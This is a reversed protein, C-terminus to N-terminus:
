DASWGGFFIESPVNDKFIIAYIGEIRPVDDLISLNNIIMEHTPKETKYIKILKNKPVGTVMFYDATDSVEQLDLISRTGEAETSEVAEEISQHLPGPMLSKETIPFEPFEIVPNYRGAKFERERLKQLASNIDKQYPVFYYYM